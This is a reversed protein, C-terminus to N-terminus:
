AKKWGVVRKTPTARKKSFDPTEYPISGLPRKEFFGLVNVSFAWDM